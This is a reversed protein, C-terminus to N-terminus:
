KANVRAMWATAVAPPTKRVDDVGGMVGKMLAGGLGPITRDIVAAIEPNNKRAKEDSGYIMGLFWALYAADRSNTVAEGNRLAPKIEDRWVKGKELSSSSASIIGALKGLAPVDASNGGLLEWTRTGDQKFLYLLYEQPMSEVDTIWGSHGSLDTTFSGPEDAKPKRDGLELLHWARDRASPTEPAVLGGILLPRSKRGIDLENWFMQLMQDADYDGDATYSLAERVIRADDGQYAKRIQKAMYAPRSAPAIGRVAPDSMIEKVVSDMDAASAGIPLSLALLLALSLRKM